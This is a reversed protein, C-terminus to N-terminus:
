VVLARDDHGAAEAVRDGGVRAIAERLRPLRAQRGLRARDCDGLGALGGVDGVHDARLHAGDIEVPRPVGDARDREAAVIRLGELHELLGLAAYLRHLRLLVARGGFGELPELLLLLLLERPELHAHAALRERERPRDLRASPDERRLAEDSRAVRVAAGGAAALVAS